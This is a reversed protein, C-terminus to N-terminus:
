EAVIHWIGMLGDGKKDGKAKDDAFFYLPKDDYAWQLTGDKRTVMSWDKEVKDDKKAAYVPWKAACADYCNSVGKTDKDFVYLTMGNQDTLMGAAQVAGALLLSAAIAMSLVSIQKRM